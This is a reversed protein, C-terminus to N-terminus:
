SPAIVVEKISVLVLAVVPTVVALIASSAIVVAFSGFEVPVVSPTVYAFICYTEAVALNNPLVVAPVPTTSSTSM